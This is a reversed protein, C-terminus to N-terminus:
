TIVKFLPYEINIEVSHILNTMNLSRHFSLFMFILDRQECVSKCHHTEHVFINSFGMKDLSKFYRCLSQQTAISSM